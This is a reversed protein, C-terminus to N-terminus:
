NRFETKLKQKDKPARECLISIHGGKSKTRRDCFLCVSKTCDSYRHNGACMVCNKISAERAKEMAEARQKEWYNQASTAAVSVKKAGRKSPKDVSSISKRDNKDNKDNKDNASLEEMRSAHEAIDKMSDKAISIPRAKMAAKIQPNSLNEIFQLIFRDEDVGLEKLLYTMDTYYTRVTRDGQTFKNVKMQVISDLDPYVLHEFEHFFAEFSTFHNKKAALDDLHYKLTPALRYLIAVHTYMTDNPCCISLFTFLKNKAQLFQIGGQSSSFEGSDVSKLCKIVKEGDPTGGCIEGSSAHTITVGPQEKLRPPSSLAGHGGPPPPLSPPPPLPPPPPTTSAAPSTPIIDKPQIPTYIYPARPPGIDDDDDSDVATISPSMVNSINMKDLLVHLEAMTEFFLKDGIAATAREELANKLRKQIRQHKHMFAGLKVLRLDNAEKQEELAGEMQSAKAHEGLMSGIADMQEALRDAYEEKTIPTLACDKVDHDSHESAFRSCNSCTYAATVGRGYRDQLTKEADAVKKEADRYSAM